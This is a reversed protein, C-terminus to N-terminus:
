FSKFRFGNSCVFKMVGDEVDLAELEQLSFVDPRNSESAESIKM